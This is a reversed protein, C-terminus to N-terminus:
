SKGGGANDAPPDGKAFSKLANEPNKVAADYAAHIAKGTDDSDDLQVFFVSGDEQTAKFNAMGM